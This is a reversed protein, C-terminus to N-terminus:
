AVDPTGPASPGHGVVAATGGGSELSGSTTVQQPLRLLLRKAWLFLAVYGANRMLLVGLSWPEAHVIGLSVVPFVLYTLHGLMLVSAMPVRWSRSSYLIGLIVPAALWLVFQPSGVKNFVILDLVAALSAAPMVASFTAGARVAHVALGLTAAFAVWMAVGVLFGVPETLTGLVEHTKLQASYLIWNDTLGLYDAWLLVSAAPSEVQLGRGQQLQLFSLMHGDGGLLVGGILLAAGTYAAAAVVAMRHRASAWTACLIAVPWIKTAAGLTYLAVSSEMRREAMLSVGLLVLVVSFSDMRSISVPGTLLLFALWFWAAEFRVAKRQRGWGVLSVLVLLDLVTILLLWGALFNSPALLDAVVIPALAPFPYVWEANIGLLSSTGRMAQVLRPYDFQVDAMTTAMGRLGNAILLLHVGIGAAILVRLSSFPTHAM